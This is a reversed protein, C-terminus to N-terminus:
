CGEATYQRLAFRWFFKGVLYFVLIWATQSFITTLFFQATGTEPM